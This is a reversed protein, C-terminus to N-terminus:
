NIVALVDNRGVNAGIEFNIAAVTGDVPAPITNEMKMSELIVVPDGVKVQDGVEVEYRIIMGFMPAVVKEGEAVTPAPAVRSQLRSDPTQLRPGPTQLGRGRSEPSEVRSERSTYPIQTPRADQGDVPTRRGTVRSERSQVRSENVAEM